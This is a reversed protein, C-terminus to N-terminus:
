WDDGIMQIIKFVKLRIIVKKSDQKIAKEKIKKREAIGLFGKSLCSKHVKPVELEFDRQM